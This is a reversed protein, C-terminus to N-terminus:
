QEYQNSITNFIKESTLSNNELMFKYEGSSEYKDSIGFSMVRTHHTSESVIESVSSKLGGILSHEEITVILKTKKLSKEIQLRDIPKITHMNFVSCKINNNKLKDAVLLAEVIISGTAYIHIDDGYESLCVSKGFEFNYDKKYVPSSNASGTLRIYVSEKATETAELCKITELTDAPCCVIINPISRMISLDEICCHTYGLPGLVLGSALGVLVVKIKMYGLNVKIQELCRMTMFPAFTTVIVEYGESSLGAAVGILNQEAIGVDLYQDPINKRFRDLGASTSVDSTLVIINKNKKALEFTALGFVARSGLMSWLKLNKENIDM